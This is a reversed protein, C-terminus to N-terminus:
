ENANGRDEPILVVGLCERMSPVTSMVTLLPDSVFRKILPGVFSYNFQVKDVVQMDSLRALTFLEDMTYEHHHGIFPVASEFITAVDPLPTKGSLLAARKPWYAINPVELYFCAGEDLVSNAFRMFNKVSHPYHEIIAMATVADFRQDLAASSSFPDCDIVEVGQSRLYSFLPEFAGSYYELAETMSVALGLRRLALPFAGWFGGVDCLSEVDRGNCICKIALWYRVESYELYARFDANKWAANHRSIEEQMEPTWLQMIDGVAEFYAKRFSDRSMLTRNKSCAELYQM